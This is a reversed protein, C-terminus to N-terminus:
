LRMPMVIWFHDARTEDAARLRAPSLADVLSIEIEDADIDKIADALYDVNFGAKIPHGSITGQIPARGESSGADYAHLCISDNEVAIKANKTKKSAIISIADIAKLTEKRSVIIKTAFDSEPPLIQRFDPPSGELLDSYIFHDGFNFGIRDGDVKIGVAQDEGDVKFKKMAYVLAKVTEAPVSITTDDDLGDLVLDYMRMRHGDTAWTCDACFHVGEINKRGDNEAAAIVCSELAGYLDAASVTYNEGGVYDPATFFDPDQPQDLVFELSEHHFHARGPSDADITVKLDGGFKKLKSVIKYFELLDVCVAGARRYEGDVVFSKVHDEAYAEVTVYGGTVRIICTKGDREKKLAMLKDKLDGLDTITADITATDTTM